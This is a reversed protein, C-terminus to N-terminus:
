YYGMVTTRKIVIPMEEQSIILPKYSRSVSYEIVDGFSPNRNSVNVISVEYKEELDKIYKDELSPRLSLEYGISSSKNDLEAYLYQISIVDMSLAFFLTFFLLSLLLGFKSSM